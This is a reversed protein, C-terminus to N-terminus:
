RIYTQKSNTPDYEPLSETDVPDVPLASETRRRADWIKKAGMILERSLSIESEVRTILASYMSSALKDELIGFQMEELFQIDKEDKGKRSNLRNYDQETAKINLKVVEQSLRLKNLAESAEFLNMPVDILIRELEDDAIPRAMCQMRAYLERQISFYQAFISSYQGDAWETAEDIDKRSRDIANTLNM